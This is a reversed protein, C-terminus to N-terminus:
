LWVIPGKEPCLIGETDGVWQPGRGPGPHYSHLASHLAPAMPQSSLPHGQNNLDWLLNAIDVSNVIFAQRESGVRDRWTPRKVTM